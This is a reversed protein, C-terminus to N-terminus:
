AVIYIAEYPGFWGYASYTTLEPQIPYWLGLFLKFGAWCLPVCPPSTSHSAMGTTSYTSIRAGSFSATSHAKSSEQLRYTSLARSTVDSGKRRSGVHTCRRLPCKVAGGCGLRATVRDQARDGDQAHSGSMFAFPLLNAASHPSRPM